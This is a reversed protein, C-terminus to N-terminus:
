RDLIFVQTIFCMGDKLESHQQVSIGFGIAIFLYTSSMSVDSTVKTM